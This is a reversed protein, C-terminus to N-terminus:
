LRTRLQPSEWVAPNCVNDPLRGQLLDIVSVASQRSMEQTSELANFANHPELLCRPARRLPHDAPLPEKSYVDLAAGAITESELAAILDADNVLTGRATNIFYATPKMLRFKAADFMGVTEPTAPAHVSVYDSERLLTELDTFELGTVASGALAPDYALVRMRFGRARQAVARGIRGVGVLGLTKGYVTSGRLENWGGARMLADGEHLKRAICLMMGFAFDAVAESMAGPTNTAVIGAEAAAQMDVSDIGVGCRVVIKLDPCAAFVRRNYPDSSGIVAQCGQLAAILEEETLPGARSSRVVECGATELAAEAEQGSVWFARATVLVRWSM